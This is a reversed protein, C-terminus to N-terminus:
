AIVEGSVHPCIRVSESRTTRSSRPTSWTTRAARRKGGPQDVKRRDRIVLREDGQGDVEGPADGSTDPSTEEVEASPSQETM